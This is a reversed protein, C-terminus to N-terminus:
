AHMSYAGDCITNAFVLFRQSCDAAVCSDGMATQAEAHPLLARRASTVVPKDLHLSPFSDIHWDSGFPFVWCATTLKLQLGCLQRCIIWILARRLVLFSGCAQCKKDLNYVCVWCLIRPYFFQSHEGLM